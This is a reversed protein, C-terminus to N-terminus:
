SAPQCCFPRMCRHFFLVHQFCSRCKLMQSTTRITRSPHISGVWRQPREAPATYCAHHVVFPIHALFLMQVYTAHVHLLLYLYVSIDAQGIYDASIDTDALIASKIPRLLCQCFATINRVCGSLKSLFACCLLDLCNDQLLALLHTKMFLCVLHIM